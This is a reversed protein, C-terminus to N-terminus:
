VKVKRPGYPGRKRGLQSPRVKGQKIWLQERFVLEINDMHWGDSWDIRSICLSGPTSGRLHWRGAWIEQYQEWTIDWPENRFKAQAKMRSWSLRHEKNSGPYTRLYSYDRGKVRGGGKPNSETKQGKLGDDWVRPKNRAM